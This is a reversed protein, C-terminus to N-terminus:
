VRRTTPMAAALLLKPDVTRLRKRRAALWYPTGDRSRPSWPVLRDYTTTANALIGDLGIFRLQAPGNELTERVRQQVHLLTDSDRNIQLNLALSLQAARERFAARRKVHFVTQGGFIDSDKKQGGPRCRSIQHGPQCHSVNYADSLAPGSTTQGVAIPYFIAIVPIITSGGVGRNSRPRTPRHRAAASTRQQSAHQQAAAFTPLSSSPALLTASSAPHPTAHQQSLFAAGSTSFSTPHNSPIAIPHGVITNPPPGFAVQSPAIIAPSSLSPGSHSVGHHSLGPNSPAAAYPRLPATPDPASTPVATAQLLPGTINSSPTPTAPPLPTTSPPGETPAAVPVQAAQGPTPQPGPTTGSALAAAANAQTLAQIFLSLIEAGGQIPLLPPPQSM